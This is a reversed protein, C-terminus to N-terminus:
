KKTREKCTKVFAQFETKNNKRYAEIWEKVHSVSGFRRGAPDGKIYYQYGQPGVPDHGVKFGEYSFTQGKLNELTTDAFTIEQWRERQDAFEIPDLM